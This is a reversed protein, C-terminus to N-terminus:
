RRPVVRMKLGGTPEFNMQLAAVLTLSSRIGHFRLYNQIQLSNKEFFIFLFLFNTFVEFYAVLPCATTSAGSGVTIDYGCPIAKSNPHIAKFRFHRMLTAAMMTVSM